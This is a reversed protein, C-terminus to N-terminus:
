PDADILGAVGRSDPRVCEEITYEEQQATVGFSLLGATLASKWM